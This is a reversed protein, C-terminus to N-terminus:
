IIFINQNQKRYITTYKRSMSDELKQESLRQKQRVPAIENQRGRMEAIRSMQVGTKGAMKPTIAPSKGSELAWKRVAQGNDHGESVCKTALKHLVKQIQHLIQLHM